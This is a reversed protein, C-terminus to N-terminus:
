KETFEQKLVSNILIGNILPLAFFYVRFVANELIELMENAVILVLVGELLSVMVYLNGFFRGRLRSRRLYGTGAMLLLLESLVALLLVGWGYPDYALKYVAVSLLPVQIHEFVGALLAAMAALVSGFAFIGIGGLCINVIGLLSLAPLPFLRSM